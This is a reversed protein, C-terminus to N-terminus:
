RQNCILVYPICVIGFFRNRVWHRQSPSNCGEGLNRVKQLFNGPILVVSLNFFSAISFDQDFEWPTDSRKALRFFYWNRIARFSNRMIEEHFFKMKDFKPSSTNPSGGGGTGDLASSVPVPGEGLGFYPAVDSTQGCHVNKVYQYTLFFHHIQHLAFHAFCVNLLPIM